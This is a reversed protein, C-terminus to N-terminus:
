SAGVRKGPKPPITRSMASQYNAVQHLAGAADARTRSRSRESEQVDNIRGSAPYAGLQAPRRRWVRSYTKSLPPNRAISSGTNDHTQPQCCRQHQEGMGLSSNSIDMSRVLGKSGSDASPALEQLIQLSVYQFTMRAVMGDMQEDAETGRCVFSAMSTRALWPFPDATHYRLM